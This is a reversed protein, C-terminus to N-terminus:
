GDGRGRPDRFREYPDSSFESEAYPDTPEAIPISDTPEPQDAYPAPAADDFQPAPSEVRGELAEEISITGEREWEPLCLLVLFFPLVQCRQRALIGFNSFSSFAYIFTLMIGVSYAVYPTRRMARPISRLRKRSKVALVILFVGELSSGFAVPSSAEIPSPRFLVTVVALPTNLPNSMRVPSFTSGAESTRGEADSLTQNITEQDLRPVGFFEATSASLVTGVVVLMGFLIMRMISSTSGPRTSKGVAAALFIGSFITLAVHPRLLTVGFLGAGVMAVGLPIQRTMVLAVGYSALGLCFIAWGEKGLASPWYLFSPLFLVLIAYRHHLGNPVARSFARWLLLLGLFSLFSFVLAGSHESAGTISYVIGTSTRMFETGSWGRIESFDFGRFLPAFYQGWQHYDLADSRNDYLTAVVIARVLTGLMKAWFAAMVFRLLWPNQAADAIRRGIRFAIYALVPVLLVPEILNYRGSGFAAIFVVGYAVYGAGSVYRPWQPVRVQALEHEFALPLADGTAAEDNPEPSGIPQDAASM